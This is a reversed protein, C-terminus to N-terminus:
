KEDQFGTFNSQDLIKDNQKLNSLLLIFASGLLNM